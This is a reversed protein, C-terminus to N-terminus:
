RNNEAPVGEVKLNLLLCSITSKNLLKDVRINEM